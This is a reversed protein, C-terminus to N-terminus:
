CLDNKEEVIVKLVKDGPSPMVRVDCGIGPIAIPGLNDCIVPVSLRKLLPIKKEIFLKKISKSGSNSNLRIRDGTRRSRVLINGCIASSKFLFTTFSKHIEYMEAEECRILMGTGPVEVTSGIKLTTEPIQKDELNSGFLINDYERRVVMGPLSLSASPSASSALKLVSSVHGSSIGSGCISRIVRSSVPYPLRRLLSASVVNNEIHNAIFDQALSELYSEDMQLLRAMEVSSQSVGSNMARLVPMVHIRINNRSYTDDSNTSDERHPISNRSNYDEIEARSLCMVPRIINGRVPPIGCLGRLGAGRVIRLLITELNDDANHATAIKAGGLEEACSYFFGYRMNRGAEEIGIGERRAIEPINESGTFLRVGLERCYDKVFSEDADSEAGRINHNFHAACLSFGCKTSLRSLIHLLCMSDAGGSVCAIVNGGAPLMDYEQCFDFVKKLFIDM